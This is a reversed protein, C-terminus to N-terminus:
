SLKRRSKSYIFVIILSVMIISLWWFYSKGSDSGMASKDGSLTLHAWFYPHKYVAKNEELFSLKADRLAASKEKGESLNEGFAEIIQYTAKDNANWLSSVISRCGAFYFARRLSNLGEGSQYKGFGSECSSLIGLEANLQKGYIEFAYLANENKYIGTEEQSFYIASYLPTRDNYLGHASLHFVQGNEAYNLFNSKTAENGLYYTGGFSEKLSKVEPENFRLNGLALNSISEITNESRLEVIKDGNYQPAFGVYTEAKPVPENKRHYMMSASLEYTITYDKILLQDDGANLVEFPLLHLLGDPIIILKRSDSNIKNKLIFDFVKKSYTLFVEYPDPVEQELPNTQLCDLLRDLDSKRMGEIKEFSVQENTISILFYFDEQIFFELITEDNSLTSAVSELQPIKVDYKLEYYEPFDSELGNIYLEMKTNLKELDATTATGAKIAIEVESIERKIRQGEMLVSDPIGVFSAANNDIVNELLTLAKSEESFQFALELYRGEKNRLYAQYCLEIARAALEKGDSSLFEKFTRDPFATRLRRTLGMNKQYQNIATELSEDDRKILYKNYAVRSYSTELPLLLNAFSASGMNEKNSNLHQMKEQLIGEAMELEGLNMYAEALKVYGSIVNSDTIDYMQKGIRKAKEYFQIAKKLDGKQEMVEGEAIALAYLFADGEQHNLYARNLLYIASDIQNIDRYAAALNVLLSSENIVSLPSVDAKEIQEWANRMYKIGKDQLISDPSYSFYDLYSLGISQLDLTKFTLYLNQDVGSPLYQLAKEFNELARLPSGAMRLNHGISNYTDHLLLSDPIGLDIVKRYHNIAGHFDGITALYSAITYYYDGVILTKNSREILEIIPKAKALLAKMTSLDGFNQALWAQNIYVEAEKDVLQHEKSLREAIELIKEAEDFDSYFSGGSYIAELLSDVRQSVISDGITVQAVADAVADAVAYQFFCGVLLTLLIKLRM